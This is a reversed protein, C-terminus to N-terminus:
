HSIIFRSALSATGTRIVYVYFGPKLFTVDMEMDHDGKDKRGLNWDLMTSGKGDIVQVSVNESKSLSFNLHLTTSAPNPYAPFLRMGGQEVYQEEIGTTIDTFKVIPYIAFHVAHPTFNQTRFDVWDTFEHNHRQVVNRGKVKFDTVLRTGPRSMYMGITDGEYGGHAYDFLNFSVYFSDAVAVPQDFLITTPDGNLTLDKYRVKKGGLRTGPVRKDSVNFVNFEALTDAHAYRGKLYTILGNVEAKGEIYYKEAYQQRFLYNHGLIYGWGQAKNYRMVEIAATPVHNKLTDLGAESVQFAVSYTRTTGDKATVLISATRQSQSGTIAAAPTYATIAGSHNAQFTLTPIVSTGFPLHVTYDLTEPTFIPHLTGSSASLSKLTADPSLKYQIIPFIALYGNYGKTVNSKNIERWVRDNHDHIRIVNRSEIDSLPRTNDSTHLVGLADGEFGGHSYDTLNFSVFFSDVVAVPRDFTTLMANRSLDIDGFYKDKRRLKRDPLGQADVNFVNFEAINEPNVVTGSHYTILGTVWAEGEIFYKEAFEENGAANRGIFMGGLKTSDILAHRALDFNYLTDILAEFDIQRIAPSSDGTGTDNGVYSFIGGADNNQGGSVAWGHNLDHFYMGQMSSGFYPIVREWQNGGDATKYIAGRHEDSGAIWGRHPSSFHISQMNGVFAHPLNQQHWTAGGDVTKLIYDNDGVVWGINEDIFFVDNFKRLVGGSHLDNWTTGGDTTKLITGKDGVIWGTSENIFFVAELTLFTEGDRSNNTWTTGDFHMIKFFDGVAWGKNSGKLFFLDKFSYDFLPLGEQVEWAQGGDASKLLTNSMGGAWLTHEDQAAITYLDYGEDFAPNSVETWHKGGDNTHMMLGSAGVTWGEELDKFTVDYLSLPVSPISFKNEWNIGLDETRAVYDPYQGAVFGTQADIFILDIVGGEVPRDEWSSGGDETYKVHGYLDSIFGHNFDFFHLGSILEYQDYGATIVRTWTTGGDNTKFLADQGSIWGTTTSSFSVRQITEYTETNPDNIVGPQQVTWTEGGDTTKVVDNWAVLYGTTADVFQGDQIDYVNDPSYKKQWSLGGNDTKFVLLTGDQNTGAIIGVNANMFHIFNPYSLEDLGTTAQSKWSKGGDITQLLVVKERLFNDAPDLIYLYTVSWGTTTNIFSPKILSQYNLNDISSTKWSSGGDESRLFMKDGSTILIDTDIAYIGNIDVSSVGAQTVWQANSLYSIFLAAFLLYLKNM